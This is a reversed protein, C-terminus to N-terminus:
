LSVMVSPSCQVEDYPDFKTCLAHNGNETIIKITATINEGCPVLNSYDGNTELKCNIVEDMVSASEQILLAYWITMMGQENCRSVGRFDMFDLPHQSCPRPLEYHKQINNGNGNQLVLEYTDGNLSYQYSLSYGVFITEGDRVEINPNEQNQRTIVQPHVVTYLIVM